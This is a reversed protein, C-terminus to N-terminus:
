CYCTNPLQYCQHFEVSPLRGPLVPIHKFYKWPVICAKTTQQALHPQKQRQHGEPAWPIASSAPSTRLFPPRPLYLYLWCFERSGGLFSFICIFLYLSTKIKVIHPTYMQMCTCVRLPILFLVSHICKKVYARVCMCVAGTILAYGSHRLGRVKLM